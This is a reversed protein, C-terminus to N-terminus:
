EKVVGLELAKKYQEDEMMLRCDLFYSSYFSCDNCIFTDEYKCRKTEMDIDLYVDEFGVNATPKTNEKLLKDRRKSTKCWMIITRRQENLIRIVDEMNTIKNHWHRNDDVAIIKGNDDFVPIFDDDTKTM